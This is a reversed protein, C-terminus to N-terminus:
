RMTEMLMNQPQESLKPRALLTRLVTYNNAGIMIFSVPVRKDQAMSNAKLYLELWELYVSIAEDMSFPELKGVAVSVM